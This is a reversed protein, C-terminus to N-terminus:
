AAEGEAEAAIGGAASRLLAARSEWFINEEPTLELKGLLAALTAPQGVEPPLVLKYVRNGDRRGTVETQFGLKAMVSPVSTQSQRGLANQLEQNTVGEARMALEFIVRRARGRPPALERRRINPEHATAVATDVLKSVFQVWRIIKVPDITGSHQRFEVTGHRFFAMFNLKAYRSAGNRRGTRHDIWEPLLATAVASLDRAQELDAINANGKLPRCYTPNSAARRSPPMLSDIVDENELYLFALRKMAPVSLHRAGIHVHLGCTRNTRAHLDKLVACALEIEGMRTENMPPSVLELGCYGLHSVTSDTVIKWTGTQRHTYGAFTTLVGRRSLEQAVGLGVASLEGVQGPVLFEIEIGFDLPM